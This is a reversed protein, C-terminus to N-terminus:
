KKLGYLKFTGSSINGSSVHFQVGDTAQATALVMAGTQSSHEDSNNTEIRNLTAYSYETTTPFNFLWFEGQSGRGTSTGIGLGNLYSASNSNNLYASQNHYHDVYVYKYNSNTDASGSVTFRIRLRSSATDLFCNFYKLNYVDYTTDIGTLSVTATNSSVTTEAIKILNGAM